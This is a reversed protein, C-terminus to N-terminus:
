SRRRKCREVAQDTTAAAYGISGFPDTGGAAQILAVLAKVTNATNMEVNGFSNGITKSFVTFKALNDDSLQLASINVYLDNPQNENAVDLAIDAEVYKPPTIPLRTSFKHADVRFKHSPDNDPLIILPVFGPDAYAFVDLLLYAGGKLNNQHTAGEEADTLDLTVVADNTLSQQWVVNILKGNFQTAVYWGLIHNLM